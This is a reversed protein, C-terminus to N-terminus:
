NGCSGRGNCPKKAPVRSPGTPFVPIGMVPPFGVGTRPGCSRAASTAGMIGTFITLGTMVAAAGDAGGRPDPEYVRGAACNTLTPFHNNPNCTVIVDGCIIDTAEDPNAVGGHAKDMSVSATLLKPAAAVIPASQPKEAAPESVVTGYLVDQALLDSSLDSRNTAATSQALAMVPFCEVLSLVLMAIILKNMMSSGLSFLFAM